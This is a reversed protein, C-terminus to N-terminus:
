IPRHVLHCHGQAPQAVGSPQPREPGSGHPAYDEPQGRVTVEVESNEAFPLNNLTLVGGKAIKATTKFTDM